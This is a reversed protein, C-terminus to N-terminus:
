PKVGPTIVWDPWNLTIGDCGADVANKIREIVELRTGTLGWARIERAVSRGATAKEATVRDVHPCLQFLNIGRAKRLTVRNIDDVLWALLLDPNLTHMKKLSEFSFSTIISSDQMDWRNLISNIAAPLKNASGKIEIHFTFRNKFREFLDDLTIMKEGGFLFPSFWSGMDLSLLRDSSLAEVRQQGHGYRELSRDHCLVVKGDASLQTDLEVEAIGMDAALKFAAATNEPAYASAGRHAIIAFREPAVIPLM